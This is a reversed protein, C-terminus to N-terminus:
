PKIFHAGCILDLARDVTWTARAAITMAVPPHDTPQEKHIGLLLRGSPNEFHSYMVWLHHDDVCARKVYPFPAPSVVISVQPYVM